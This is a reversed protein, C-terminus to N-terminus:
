KTWILITVYGKSDVANIKVVHNSKEAEVHEPKGDKTIKWGDRKLIKEYDNLAQKYQAGQLKYVANGFQNNKTPQYKDVKMSKYQPLYTFEKTYTMKRSNFAFVVIIVIIIGIITGYLIKKNKM